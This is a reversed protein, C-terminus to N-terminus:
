AAARGEEPAAARPPVSPDSALLIRGGLPHKNVAGRGNSGKELTTFLGARSSRTRENVRARERYSLSCTFLCVRRPRNVSEQKTIM